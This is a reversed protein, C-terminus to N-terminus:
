IKALESKLYDIVKVEVADEGKQESLYWSVWDGMHVLYLSQEILSSGKSWVEMYTGASHILVEKTINMRVQTRAHDNKNRLVVVAIESHDGKWGVLENHNMEPLCNHWCLTKANENLQQRWRLTVPEMIQASYLVPLKGSLIRAIHEAKERIQEQDDNLSQIANKIKEKQDENIIGKRHLMYLQAVLSYGLCARPSAWDPPLQIHELGEEKAKEILEGGSSMVVIHAKTQLLKRFAELSEETNGSYSSVIALTQRSVFAPIQYNKNVSIPVNCKDDLWSRMFDGGIGSGGMGCILVNQFFDKQMEISSKEVLEIAEALQDPFDSIMEDMM